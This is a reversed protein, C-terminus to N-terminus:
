VNTTTRRGSLLLGHLKVETLEFQNALKGKVESLSYDNGDRFIKLFPLGLSQFDPVSM